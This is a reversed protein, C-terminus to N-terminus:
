FQEVPVADYKPIVRLLLQMGFIIQKFKSFYLLNLQCVVLEADLVFHQSFGWLLLEEEVAM